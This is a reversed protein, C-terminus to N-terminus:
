DGESTHKHQLGEERDTGDDAISMLRNFRGSSVLSLPLREAIAAYETRTQPLHMVVKGASTTWLGCDRSVACQQM